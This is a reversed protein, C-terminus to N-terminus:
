FYVSPFIIGAWTNKKPYEKDKLFFKIKNATTYHSIIKLISSFLLSCGFLTLNGNITYKFLLTLNGNITYKFM